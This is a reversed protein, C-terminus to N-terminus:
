RPLGQAHRRFSAPTLEGYRKFVVGMYEQHRFGAREAILHIPLDSKALLEKARSIRVRVIEDHVSCGLVSRFRENLMARSSLTRDLVDAVNIGHCANERIFSLADAVERDDIALVDTSQRAIVGTPALLIPQAPPKAGRMMADLLRAAEYGVRTPDPYVSTLPPCSIECVPEDNDVGIVAVENPAALSLRRCTELVKQGIPDNCAMVGVPKPLGHVWAALRNQQEDWSLRTSLQAPLMYVSVGAGAGRAIATFAARRADSWNVDRLGCFGLHRFGRQLLHDAAMKGVAEDDVHVLPINKRREVGLVDVAPLGTAAVADAIKKSQLRAIIGDGQWRELWKPVPDDLGHPEHFISWPGHDRLYRGVGLVIDRGSALSTEVLVAVHRQNSANPKRKM